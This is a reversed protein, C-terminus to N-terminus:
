NNKLSRWEGTDVDYYYASPDIYFWGDDNLGYVFPYANGWFWGLNPVYIWVNGDADDYLYPFYWGEFDLSYVWPLAGVWVYGYTESFYWYDSPTSRLSGKGKPHEDRPANSPLSIPSFGFQLSVFGLGKGKPTGKQVNIIRGPATSIIKNPDSTITYTLGKTTDNKLTLKAEYTHAPLSAGYTVTGDSLEWSKVVVNVSQGVPPAYINTTDLVASNATWYLDRNNEQYVEVRILPNTSTIPDGSPSQTSVQYFNLTPPTKWDKGAENLTLDNAGVYLALVQMSGAGSLNTLAVNDPSINPYQLSMGTQAGLNTFNNTYGLNFYKSLMPKWYNPSTSDQSWTSTDSFDVWMNDNSTSPAEIKFDSAKSGDGSGTWEFFGVSRVYAASDAMDSDPQRGSWGPTAPSTILAITGDGATTVTNPPLDLTIVTGNTSVSKITTGAPIGTGSVDQGAQPLWSVKDTTGTPAVLKFLYAAATGTGSPAQNLDVVDGKASVASVTTGSSLLGSTAATISMGDTITDGSPVGTVIITYTSVNFIGTANFTSTENSFTVTSTGSGTTPSSLTVLYANKWVEEIFTAAPVLTTNDSTLYMNAQPTIHFDTLLALESAKTAAVQGSDSNVGTIQSSGATLPTSDVNVQGNFGGSAQSYGVYNAVNISVKGIQEALQTYAFPVQGGDVSTSGPTGDPGTQALSGYDDLKYEVVPTLDSLSIEPLGGSHDLKPLIYQAMRTPTWAIVYTYVDTYPDYDGNYDWYFAENNLPESNFFDPNTAGALAGRYIGTRNFTGYGEATFDLTVSEDGVPMRWFNVSGMKTMDLDSGQYPFNGLTTQPYTWTTADPFIKDAGTNAALLELWTQTGTPALGSEFVKVIFQTTSSAPSPTVIGLAPVGTTGSSLGTLNLTINPMDAPTITTGSPLDINWTSAPLFGLQTDGDAVAAQSFTITASQGNTAVDINTVTTNDPFIQAAPFQTVTSNKAVSNADAGVNVTKTGETVSLGPINLVPDSSGEPPTFDLRITGTKDFNESLTVVQTTKNVHTVTVGSGLYKPTSSTPQQFILDGNALQGFVGSETLVVTTDGTNIQYKNATGVTGPTTVKVTGTTTTGLVASLFGNSNLETQMDSASVNPAFPGFTQASTGDGVVITFTGSLDVGGSIANAAAYTNLTQEAVVEDTRILSEVWMSYQSKNTNPTRILVSSLERSAGYQTIDQIDGNNWDFTIYEAQTSETYPVFEFDIENWRWLQAVDQMYNASPSNAYLWFTSVSRSPSMQMEAIYLGYGHTTTSRLQASKFDGYRSYEKYPLPSSEQALLSSSLSALLSLCAIILVIPSNM